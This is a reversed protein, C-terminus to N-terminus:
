LLKEELRAVRDELTLHSVKVGFTLDEIIISQICTRCFLLLGVKTEVWGQSLDLANLPADCCRCRAGSGVHFVRANM